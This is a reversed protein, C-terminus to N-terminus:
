KIVNIRSGKSLTNQGVVILSEGGTLGELVEVMEGYKDGIKLFKEMAKDGERVLVRVRTGDYLLSTIPIVVAERPAATYLTVKAFLGPKLDQEPNEVLAEAKLTRTREDLSPHIISLIGSFSKGPFADVTFSVNRGKKLFGVDKETVAFSLKLPNIQVVTLMPMGAAILDGAAVRKMKVIGNMPSRIVTKDLRERALSLAVDARDLDQATVTLRTSVDDFQQLTVLDDKLLSEKRMHEIKLNVLSAEAQKLAAEANLVNLRYDTDNIRALVMGKTVRTGEDVRIEKLLGTAESSVIVEEFPNLTGVTSLCPRVLDKQVTQIKVNSIKDEKIEEKEKACGLCLGAVCAAATVLVLVIRIRGRYGAPCSGHAKNRRSM